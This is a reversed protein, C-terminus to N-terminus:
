WTRLSTAIPTRTQRNRRSLSVSSIFSIDVHARFNLSALKIQWPFIVSFCLSFVWIWFDILVSSGTLLGYLCDHLFFEIYFLFSKLPTFSHPFQSLLLTTFRCVFTIQCTCPPTLRFYLSVLTLSVSHPMCHNWSVVLVSGLCVSLRVSLCVSLRPTTCLASTM